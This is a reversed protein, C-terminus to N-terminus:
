VSASKVLVNDSPELVGEAWDSVFYGWRLSNTTAPLWVKYMTVGDKEYVQRVLGHEKTNRNHVGENLRFPRTSAAPTRLTKRVSATMRPEDMEKAVSALTADDLDNRDHENAM